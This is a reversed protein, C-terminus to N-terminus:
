LSAAHWLNRWPDSDAWLLEQKGTHQRCKRILLPFIGYFLKTIAETKKAATALSFALLGFMFLLLRCQQNKWM